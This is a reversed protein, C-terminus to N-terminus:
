TLRFNLRPSLVIIHSSAFHRLPHISYRIHPIRHQQMRRPLRSLTCRHLRILIRRIHLILIYRRRLIHPFHGHSSLLLMIMRTPLIAHQRNSHNPLSPIQTHVKLIINSLRHYLLHRTRPHNPLSLVKPTIQRSDEKIRFSTTRIRHIPHTFISLFHSHILNQIPRVRLIRHLSFHMRHLVRLNMHHNRRIMRAILRHLRTIFNARLRRISTFRHFLIMRQRLCLPGLRFLLTINPTPTPIIYIPSNVGHSTFSPRIFNTLQGFSTARHIGHYVISILRSHVHYRNSQGFIRILGRILQGKRTFRRFPYISFLSIYNTARHRPTRGLLLMSHFHRIMRTIMRHIRITTKTHIPSVLTRPLLRYTRMLTTHRRHQRQCNSLLKRTRPTNRIRRIQLVGRLLSFSNPIRTFLPLLRHLMTTRHRSLLTTSGIRHTTPHRNKLRNSTHHLIMPHRINRPVNYLNRILLYLSFTHYLSLFHLPNSVLPRIISRSHRQYLHVLHYPQMSPPDRLHFHHIPVKTRIRITIDRRFHHHHPGFFSSIRHLCMITHRRSTLTRSTLVERRLRRHNRRYFKHRHNIRRRIPRTSNCLYLIQLQSYLHRRCGHRTLRRHHHNLYGRHHSSIIILFLKPSFLMRIHRFTTRGTSTTVRVQRIRRQPRTIHSTGRFTMIRTTTIRIHGINRCHFHTLRRTSLVHIIQPLTRLINSTHRYHRRTSQRLIRRTIRPHTMIHRRISRIISPIRIHRNRRIIRHHIRPVRKIPIISPMSFYRMLHRGNPIFLFRITRLLMRNSSPLIFTLSVNRSPLHRLALRRHSFRNLHIYLFRRRLMPRYFILLIYMTVRITPRLHFHILTRFPMNMTLMITCVHNSIILIRFNSIYERLFRLIVARRYFLSNRFHNRSIFVPVLRRFRMSNILHHGHIRLKRRRYHRGHHPMLPIFNGFMSFTPRFNFLSSETTRIVIHQGGGDSRYRFPPVNVLM